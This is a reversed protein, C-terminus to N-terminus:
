KDEELSYQSIHYEFIVLCSFTVSYWFFYYAISISGHPLTWIIPITSM